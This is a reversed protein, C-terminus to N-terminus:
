GKQEQTVANSMTKVCVACIRHSRAEGPNSPDGIAREANEWTNVIAFSILRREGCFHCWDNKTEAYIDAVGSRARRSSPDIEVPESPAVRRLIAYEKNRPVVVGVGVKEDTWDNSPGEISLRVQGYELGYELKTIEFTPDHALRDGIELQDARVVMSKFASKITDM